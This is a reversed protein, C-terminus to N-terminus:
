DPWGSRVLPWVDDFFWRLGVSNPATNSGVFLLRDAQGPQAEAVPTAAMPALIARVGMVNADIFAAEQAQIAIVADAQGLMTIEAERTVAEVSDDSGGNRAHFLDHMIIATPIDADPLDAFGE